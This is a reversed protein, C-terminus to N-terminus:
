PHLQLNLPKVQHRKPHWPSRSRSHRPRLKLNLLQRLNPNRRPLRNSQPQSLRNLLLPKPSSLNPRM